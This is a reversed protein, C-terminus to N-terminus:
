MTCTKSLYVFYFLLKHHSCGDVQPTWPPALDWRWWARWLHDRLTDVLDSLILILTHIALQPGLTWLGLETSHSSYANSQTFSNCNEVCTSSTFSHHHIRTTHGRSWVHHSRQPLLVLASDSTCCLLDTRLVLLLPLTQSRLPFGLPILFGILWPTEALGPTIWLRELSAPHTQGAAVSVRTTAHMALPHMSRLIRACRWLEEVLDHGRAEWWGLHYLLLCREPGLPGLFLAFATGLELLIFHLQIYLDVILSNCLTPSSNLTMVRDEEGVRGQVVPFKNLLLMHLGQM